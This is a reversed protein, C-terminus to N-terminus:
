FLAYNGWKKIYAKIYPNTPDLKLAISLERKPSVSRNGLRYAIWALGIHYWPNTPNLEVASLCLEMAENGHDKINKFYEQALAYRYGANSPDLEIAKKLFYANKSDRYQNYLVRAQFVHMQSISILLIFLSFLGFIIGAKRKKLVIIRLPMHHYLYVSRITVALILFFLFAISPIHFNFTVMNAMLLLFIASIGGLTIGV